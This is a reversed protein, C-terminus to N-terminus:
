GAADNHPNPGSEVTPLKWRVKFMSVPSTEEM